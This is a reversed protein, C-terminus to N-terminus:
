AAVGRKPKLLSRGANTMVGLTKFLGAQQSGSRPALRPIQLSQLQQGRKIPIQLRGLVRAVDDGAIRGILLRRLFNTLVDVAQLLTDSHSVVFSMDDTVIKKLNFGVGTKSPGHPHVIDTTMLHNRELFRYDFSPDDCLRWPKKVSGNELMAGVTERWWAEQTTICKPDKADITWTFQGLERPRRQAFYLTTLEVASAM